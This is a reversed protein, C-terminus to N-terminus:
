SEAKAPDGDPQWRDAAAAPDVVAASARPVLTQPSCLGLAGATFTASLREIFVRRGARPVGCPEASRFVAHRAVPASTTPLLAAAASCGLLQLLVQLLVSCSCSSM